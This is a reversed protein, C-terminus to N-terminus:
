ITKTAYRALLYFERYEARFLNALEQQEQRTMARIEAHLQEITVAQSSAKRYRRGGGTFDFRLKLVGQLKKKGGEAAGGIVIKPDALMKQRSRGTKVLDTSSGYRRNKERIYKQSRQKYGYTGHASREFHKPIHQKHHRAIIAKLADKVVRNHDRKAMEEPRTPLTIVADLRGFADIQRGALHALSAISPM